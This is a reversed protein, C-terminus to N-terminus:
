ELDRGVELVVALIELCLQRLAEVGLFCGPFEQFAELSGVKRYSGNGLASCGCGPGGNVV